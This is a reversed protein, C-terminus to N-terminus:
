GSANVSLSATWSLSTHIAELPYNGPHGGSSVTANGTGALESKDAGPLHGPCRIALSPM